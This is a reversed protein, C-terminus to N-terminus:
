LLFPGGVLGTPPRYIPHLFYPAEPLTARAGDWKNYANEIEALDSPVPDGKLDYMGVANAYGAFMYFRRVMERQAYEAFLLVAVVGAVCSWIAIKTKRKMYIAGARGGPIGVAQISM